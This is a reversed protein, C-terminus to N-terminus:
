AAALRRRRLTAGILGFGAILMAWSSPEPVANASTDILSRFTMDEQAANPFLAAFKRGGAYPDAPPGFSTSTGLWGYEIVTGAASGATLLFTYQQGATVNIGLTSLSFRLGCPGFTGFIADPNCGLNQTTSGLLTGSLGDGARIELTLSAPAGTYLDVFRNAAIDFAGLRGTMGATISQGLPLNSFSPGYDLVNGQAFTTQAQDVVLGASVSQALTLAALTAITLHRAQVSREGEEPQVPATSRQAPRKLM